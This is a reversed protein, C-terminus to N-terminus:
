NSNFSNSIESKMNHKQRHSNVIKLYLVGERIVGWELLGGERILVGDPLDLFLYAGQPSILTNITIM